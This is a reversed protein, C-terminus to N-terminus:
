LVSAAPLFSANSRNNDGFMISRVLKVAGFAIIVALSVYFLSTNRSFSEKAGKNCLLVVFYTVVAFILSTEVQLLELM